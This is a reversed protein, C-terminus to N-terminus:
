FSIYRINNIGPFLTAVGTPCVGTAITCSSIINTTQNSILASGTNTLSIGYPSSFMFGNPSCNSITGSSPDVQCVILQNLSPSAFVIKTGDSSIAVGALSNSNSPNYTNSGCNTLQGGSVSCISVKGSQNTVYLYQGSESLASNVPSDFNSNAVNCETIMNNTISCRVVQKSTLNTIYAFTGTSDVTISTANDLASFTQSVCNNLAGSQISCTSISDGNNNVIYATTKDPSFGIDFPNNLNSGTLKCGSIVGSGNISCVSVNGAPYTTSDGQVVYVVSNTSPTSSEVPQSEGSQSQTTFNFTTPALATNSAVSVIQNSLVVYYRTQANLTSVVNFKYQDSGVAQPNTLAVLAGAPTSAHLTVTSNTVNSVPINFQVTISTSTSVNVAGNLPNTLTAVPTTQDASTGSSGGGSSGSSGGGCSVLLGSSIFLIGFLFKNIIKM